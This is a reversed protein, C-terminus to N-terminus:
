IRGACWRLQLPCHRLRLQCRRKYVDKKLTGHWVASATGWATCTLRVHANKDGMPGGMPWGMPGGVPGGMCAGVEFELEKCKPEFPKLRELEQKLAIEEDRLNGLQTWTQALEEALRKNEAELTRRAQNSVDLHNEAVERARLLSAEQLVLVCVRHDFSILPLTKQHDSAKVEVNSAHKAKSARECLYHTAQNTSSSRHSHAHELACCKIINMNYQKFQIIASTHIIPSIPDIPSVEQLAM